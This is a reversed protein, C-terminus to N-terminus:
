LTNRPNAAALAKGQYLASRGAGTCSDTEADCPDIASQGDTDKSIGYDDRQEVAPDVDLYRGPGLRKLSLGEATTPGLGTAEEFVFDKANLLTRLM